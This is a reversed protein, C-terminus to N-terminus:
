ALLPSDAGKDGRGGGPFPKYACGCDWTEWCGTLWTAHQWFRGFLKRAGLGGGEKRHIETIMGDTLGNLDTWDRELLRETVKLGVNMGIRPRRRLASLCQWLGPQTRLLLSHEDWADIALICISCRIVRTHTYLIYIHHTYIIYIDNDQLLYFTSLEHYHWSYQSCHSVISVDM